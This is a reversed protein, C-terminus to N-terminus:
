DPDGPISLEEESKFSRSRRETENILSANALDRSDNASQARANQFSDRDPSSSARSLDIIAPRRVHRRLQGLRSSQIRIARWQHDSAAYRYGTIIAGRDDGSQMWRAYKRGRRASLVRETVPAAPPFKLPSVSAIRPLKRNIRALDRLMVLISRARTWRQDLAVNNRM